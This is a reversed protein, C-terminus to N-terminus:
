NSNNVRDRNYKGGSGEKRNRAKTKAIFVTIKLKLSVRLSTKEEEL